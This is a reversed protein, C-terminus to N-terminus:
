LWIQPKLAECLAPSHLCQHVSFIFLNNFMRIHTVWASCITNRLLQQHLNYDPNKIGKTMQSCQVLLCNSSADLTHVSQKAFVLSQNPPPPTCWVTPVMCIYQTHYWVSHISCWVMGCWAPRSHHQAGHYPVDDMQSAGHGPARCVLQMGPHHQEGVGVWWGTGYEPAGFLVRAKDARPDCLTGFGCRDPIWGILPIHIYQYLNIHAVLFICILNIKLCHLSELLDVIAFSLVQFFSFKNANQFESFYRSGQSRREAWRTCGFTMASILIIIKCEKIIMICSGQVNIDCVAPTLNSQPSPSSSTSSSSSSPRPQLQKEFTM